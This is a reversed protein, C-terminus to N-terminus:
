IFYNMKIGMVTPLHVVNVGEETLIGDIEEM